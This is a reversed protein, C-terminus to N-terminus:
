IGLHVHFQVALHDAILALRKEGDTRMHSHAGVVTAPEASSADSVM